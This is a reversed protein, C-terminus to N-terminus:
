EEPLAIWWIGSDGPDDPPTPPIPSQPTQIWDEDVSIGANALHEAAALAYRDNDQQYAVYLRGVSMASARRVGLRNGEVDHFLCCWVPSRFLEHAAENWVIKGSPKIAMVATGDVLSQWTM